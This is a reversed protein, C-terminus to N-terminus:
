HVTVVTCKAAHLVKHSVSGVLLGKLDSLGRSGMVIADVGLREAEELIVDAPLGTRVINEVHVDSEGLKKQTREMLGHGAAEAEEVHELLQRGAQEVTERSAGIPRAGVARGLLDGAPPWEPVNLLYLTAQEASALRQAVRLARRSHESGDLPVLIKNFM